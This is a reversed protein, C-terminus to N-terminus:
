KEKTLADILQQLQTTLNDIKLHLLQENTVIQIKDEVTSETENKEEPTDQVEEEEVTGDVEKKLAMNNKGGKM